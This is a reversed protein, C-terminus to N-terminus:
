LNFAGFLLTASLFGVLVWRPLDNGSAIPTDVTITM